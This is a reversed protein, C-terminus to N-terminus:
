FTGGYIDDNQNSSDNYSTHIPEEINSNSGFIDDSEEKKKNTKHKTQPTQHHKMPPILSYYGKAKENRKQM